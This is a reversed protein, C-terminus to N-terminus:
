SAENALRRIDGYGHWKGLIQDGRIVLIDGNYETKYLDDTIRIWSHYCSKCDFRGCPLKGELIATQCEKCGIKGFQNRAKRKMRKTGRCEPCLTIYPHVIAREFDAGCSECQVTERTVKTGKRVLRPNKSKAM